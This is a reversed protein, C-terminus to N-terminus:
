RSLRLLLRLEARKIEPVCELIESELCQCQEPTYNNSRSFMETILFYKFPKGWGEDCKGLGLVEKRAIKQVRKAMCTRGISIVFEGGCEKLFNILTFFILLM